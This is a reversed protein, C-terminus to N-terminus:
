PLGEVYSQLAKIAQMAGFCVEVKNGYQRLISHWGMQEDDIDSLTGHKRKMEIYLAHYPPRAVPLVLDPVGNKLGMKKMMAVIQFRGPGAIAGNPVAYLLFLAPRRHAYMNAWAVVTAQEDAESPLFRKLRFRVVKKSM